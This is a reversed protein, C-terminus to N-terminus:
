EVESITPAPAAPKEGGVTKAGNVYAEFFREGLHLIGAADYHANCFTPDKACDAHYYSLDNTEIIRVAGDERAVVDMANRITDPYAWPTDSGNRIKGVIVPTTASLVDSRFENILRKLNTSYLNASELNVSDTEGQMWFFSKVVPQFGSNCIQEAAKKFDALTEDYIGGAERYRWENAGGLNRLGAGPPAAKYIIFNNEGSGQLKAALTYDFGFLYNSLTAAGNQLTSHVRMNWYKFQFGNQAFFLKAWHNDTIENTLAAGAANSQGAIFYIEALPKGECQSNTAALKVVPCHGAEYGYQMYYTYSDLGSQAVEPYLYQYDAASVRKTCRGSIQCRGEAAGYRKYHVFPNIGNQKVDANISLYREESCSETIAASSRSFQSSAM